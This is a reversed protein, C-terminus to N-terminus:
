LLRVIHYGSYTSKAESVHRSPPLPACFSLILTLVTSLQITKATCDLPAWCLMLMECHWDPFDWCTQSDAGGASEAAEDSKKMILQRANGECLERRQVFVSSDNNRHVNGAHGRAGANRSKDHKDTETWKDNQGQTETTKVQLVDKRQMNEVLFVFCVRPSRVILPRRHHVLSQWLVSSRQASWQDLARGFTTVGEEGAQWRKWNDKYWMQQGGWVKQGTNACIWYGGFVKVSWIFRKWETDGRLGPLSLARDTFSRTGQKWMLKNDVQLFLTAAIKACIPKKGEPQPLSLLKRHDPTTCDGCSSMSVASSLGFVCLKRGNVVSCWGKTCFFSGVLYITIWAEVHVQINVGVAAMISTIPHHWVQEANWLQM